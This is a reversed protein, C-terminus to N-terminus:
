GTGWQREEGVGVTGRGGAERDRRVGRGGSDKEAELEGHRKGGGGSDREGRRGASHRM